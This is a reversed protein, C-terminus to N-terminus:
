TLPKTTNSPESAGGVLLMATRRLNEFDGLKPQTDAAGARRARSVEDAERTRTLAIVPISWAVPDHRLQEITALGELENASLDLVVLDALHRRLAPLVFRGRSTSMVEFGLVHFWHGYLDRTQEHPDVILVLPRPLMSQSYSVDQIAIRV